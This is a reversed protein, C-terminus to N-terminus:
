VITWEDSNTQTRGELTTSGVGDLSTGAGRKTFVVNTISHPQKTSADDVQQMSFLLTGANDVGIFASLQQTDAELEVSVSIMRGADGVVEPQRLGDAQSMLSGLDEDVSISKVGVIAVGNHSVSEVNTFKAM